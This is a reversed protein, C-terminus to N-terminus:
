LSKIGRILWLSMLFIEFPDTLYAPGSGLSVQTRYIHNKWFSILNQDWMFYTPTYSLPIMYYANITRRGKSTDNQPSIDGVWNAGFSVICIWRNHWMKIKDSSNVKFLCGMFPRYSDQLKIMIINCRCYLAIINKLKSM